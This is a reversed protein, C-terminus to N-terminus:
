IINKFFCLSTNKIRFIKKKKAIENIFKVVDKSSTKGSVYDHWLIIGKNNLMYFAKRTDNKVINYTHGGDIFILDFFGKYKTEDFNVSNQFIVKIKKEENSGSFLFKNYISEDIMNRYSIKNDGKKNSIKDIKKPNLTLTIIKSDDKSNLAMIYTSKGSCTGFEFINKSVKSLCGIIWAEYNSTM